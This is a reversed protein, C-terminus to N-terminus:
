LVSKRSYLFFAYIFINLYSLACTSSGVYIFAFSIVIYSAFYLTTHYVIYIHIIYLVTINFKSCFSGYKGQAIYGTTRYWNMFCFINHYTTTFMRFLFLFLHFKEILSQVAETKFKLSVKKVSLKSEVNM